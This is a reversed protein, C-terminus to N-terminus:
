AVQEEQACQDLWARHHRERIGIKRESLRTVAPGKGNRLLRRGTAESFGCRQCWTAFTMVRDLDDPNLTPSQQDLLAPPM